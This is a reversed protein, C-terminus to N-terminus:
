IHYNQYFCLKCKTNKIESYESNRSIYRSEVFWSVIIWCKLFNYKIAKHIFIM